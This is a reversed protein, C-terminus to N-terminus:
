VKTRPFGEIIFDKNEKECEAIRKKLVDCVIQDPVYENKNFAIQIKAGLDTKKQVESRLLTGIEIVNLGFAEALKKCHEKKQAGAPGIM